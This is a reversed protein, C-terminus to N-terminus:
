VKFVRSLIALSQFGNYDSSILQIRFNNIVEINKAIYTIICLIINIM